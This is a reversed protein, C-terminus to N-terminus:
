RSALAPVTISLAPPGKRETPATVPEMVIEVGLPKDAHAPLAARIQTWGAKMTTKDVTESALDTGDSKITIKWGDTRPDCAATFELTGAKGAPLTKALVYAKQGRSLGNLVFVNHRGQSEWLMSSQNLNV